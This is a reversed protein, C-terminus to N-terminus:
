DLKAQLNHLNVIGALFCGLGIEREELNGTVTSLNAGFFHKSKKFFQSIIKINLTKSVRALDPITIQTGYPLPLLVDVPKQSSLM